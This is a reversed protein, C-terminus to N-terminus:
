EGVHERRLQTNRAIRSTARKGLVMPFDVALLEGTGPRKV